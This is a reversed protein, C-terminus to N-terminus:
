GSEEASLPKKCLKAHRETRPETSLERAAAYFRPLDADQAALLREFGPVCDYYTAMSALQANNLGQQLWEDYVSPHVKLRQELERLETALGALIEAKRTRMQPPALGSAYLRALSSRARTFLAVFARERERAKRFAPMAGGQGHLKLWRQVGEEEVTMAFAENFETDNKVYLLQHALEHFMMAALETDGYGLMTSLVPDSLKGLTSYAPVGGVTVDLGQRALSAAFAHARKESFYGRYAVCGAIPFCWRQPDVSFEPTAVVSWVVYPRGIDAYTRYSSNDPLKLESSAFERAERVGFLTQRIPEPTREDIVVADIRRRAHMVQWQGVAAQTLYLTGCGPLALILIAVLLVRVLATPAHARYEALM